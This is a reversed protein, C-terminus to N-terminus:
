HGCCPQTKSGCSICTRYEDRYVSYATKAIFGSHASFPAPLRNFAGDTEILRRLMANRVAIMEKSKWDIIGSM